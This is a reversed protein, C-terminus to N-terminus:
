FKQIIPYIQFFEPDSTTNDDYYIILVLELENSIKSESKLIENINIPKYLSATSKVFYSYDDFEKGYRDVLLYDRKWVEETINEDGSGRSIPYNWNTIAGMFAVSSERSGVEFEELFQPQKNKEILSLEVNRINQKKL